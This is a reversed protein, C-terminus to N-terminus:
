HLTARDIRFRDVVDHVAAQVGDACLGTVDGTGGREGCSEGLGDRAHGDVPLASRGLLRHVEGGLRHHAAGGVEDHAPPTCFILWYGM